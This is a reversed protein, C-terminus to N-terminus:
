FTGGVHIVSFDDFQLERTVVKGSGSVSGGPGTV